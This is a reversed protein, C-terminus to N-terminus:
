KEIIFPFSVLVDNEKKLEVRWQGLEKSPINDKIPLSTILVQNSGYKTTVPISLYIENNPKIWDAMFTPPSWSFNPKFVVHLTVKEDTTKYITKTESSASGLWYYNAGESLNAKQVVTSCGSFILATFTILSLRIMQKM